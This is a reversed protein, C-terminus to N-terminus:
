TPSKDVKTHPRKLIIDRNSKPKGSPSFENERKLRTPSKDTLKQTPSKPFRPSLWPSGQNTRRKATVPNVLGVRM